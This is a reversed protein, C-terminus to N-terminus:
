DPWHVIEAVPVTSKAGATTSYRFKEKILMIASLQGEQNDFGDLGRIFIRDSLAFDRWPSQMYRAPVLQGKHLCAPRFESSRERVDTLIAGEDTVSLIKGTFEVINTRAVERGGVKVTHSVAANSPCTSM